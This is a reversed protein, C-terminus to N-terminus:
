PTSSQHFQTRYLAPRRCPLRRPRACRADLWRSRLGTSGSPRRCVKKVLIPAHFDAGGTVARLGKALEVSVRLSSVSVDSLAFRAVLLLDGLVSCSVNIVNTRIVPQAGLARLVHDSCELNVLTPMLSVFTSGRTMVLNGPSNLTSGQCRLRAHAATRFCACM